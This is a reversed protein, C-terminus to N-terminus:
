REPLSAKRRFAACPDPRRTRPTFRVYDYSRVTAFGGFHDAPAHVGPRVEVQAIALTEASGMYLPVGRDRRVHGNGAILVTRTESAESIVQAMRMDRARQANVMSALTKAGPQYGCHGDVMDRELAALVAPDGPGPSAALAQARALNAALLPWRERVAFSVLPEYLPWNWGSRDFRGADALAEADAPARDIAIQHEVDFQEMALARHQGARALAELTDRQFRHHDASDHVEGLLVHRVEAARQWVTEAEVFQGSAPHWFRGELPHACASALVTATVALATRIM